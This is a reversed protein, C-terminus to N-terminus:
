QGPPRGAGAQSKISIIKVAPGRSGDPNKLFLVVTGDQQTMTDYEQDGPGPPTPPPPPGAPAGQQMAAMLAPPVAGPGSPSIAGTPTVSGAGPIAAPLTGPVGSPLAGAVTSPGTNPGLYNLPM